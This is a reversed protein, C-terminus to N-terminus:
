QAPKTAALKAQAVMEYLSDLEREASATGVRDQGSADVEIKVTLAKGYAAPLASSPYTYTYETIMSTINGPDNMAAAMDSPSPGGFGGAKSAMDGMGTSPGLHAGTGAKKKKVASVPVTPGLLMMMKGRATTSGPTEAVTLYKDAKAANEAVDNVFTAGGRKALYDNVFQEAEADTKLGSWQAREASTMYYSQPSHAWDKYKKSLGAFAATACLAIVFVAAIRKM